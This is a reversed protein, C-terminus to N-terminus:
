GEDENQPGRLLRFEVFGPMEKLSSDRTRWVEEFAEEKGRVVKFRNMAIFMHEGKMNGSCRTKRLPALRSAGREASAEPLIVKPDPGAQTCERRAPLPVVNPSGTRARMILELLDARLGEGRPAALRHFATM